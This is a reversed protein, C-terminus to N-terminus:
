TTQGHPSPPGLYSAQLAHRKPPLGPVRQVSFGLQTLADRVPRAV